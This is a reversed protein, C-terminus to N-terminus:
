RLLHLRRYHDATKYHHKKFFCTRTVGEIPYIAHPDPAHKTMLDKGLLPFQKM